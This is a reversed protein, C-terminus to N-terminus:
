GIKAKLSALAKEVIQKKATIDALEAEADAKQKKIEEAADAKAKATDQTVKALEAQAESVKAKIKAVEDETQAGVEALHAKADALYQNYGQQAEAEKAKLENIKDQTAKRVPEVKAEEDVIKQQVDQLNKELITTHRKLEDGREAANIVAPLAELMPAWIDYFKQIEKPNFDM